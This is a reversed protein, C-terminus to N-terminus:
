GVAIGSREAFDFSARAIRDRRHRTEVAEPGGADGGRESVATDRDKELAKHVIRELEAPVNPNLRVPAVPARNLIAEFLEATSTEGFRCSDQPWRM